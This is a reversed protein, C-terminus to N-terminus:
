AGMEFEKVVTCQLHVVLSFDAAIMFLEHSLSNLYIIETKARSRESLKM